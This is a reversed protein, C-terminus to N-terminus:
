LFNKIKYITLININKVDSYDALINNYMIKTEIDIDKKFYEVFKKICYDEKFKIMGEIMKQIFGISILYKKNENTKIWDITFFVIYKFFNSNTHFFPIFKDLILTEKLSYFESLKKTLIDFLYITLYNKNKEFFYFLFNLLIDLTKKDYCIDRLILKIYDINEDKEMDEMLKNLYINDSFILDANEKECIM